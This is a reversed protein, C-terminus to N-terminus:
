VSGSILQIDVFVKVLEGTSASTIGKDFKIEGISWCFDSDGFAIAHSDDNVKLKSVVGEALTGSVFCYADGKQVYEVLGGLRNEAHVVVGAPMLAMSGSSAGNLVIKGDTNIRVVEHEYGSPNVDDPANASFTIYPISSM